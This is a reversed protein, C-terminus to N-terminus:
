LAGLRDYQVGKLEGADAVPGPLRSPSHLDVPVPDFNKFQNRRDRGRLAAQEAGRVAPGPTRPDDYDFRVGVATHRRERHGGLWHASRITLRTGSTTHAHQPFTISLTPASLRTAYDTM